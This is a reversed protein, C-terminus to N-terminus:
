RAAIMSWFLQRKVSLLTVRPAANCMAALHQDVCVGVTRNLVFQSPQWLRRSVKITKTKKDFPRGVHTMM